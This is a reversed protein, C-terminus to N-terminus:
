DEPRLRDNLAKQYKEKYDGVSNEKVRNKKLLNFKNINKNLIQQNEFQKYIIFYIAKIMYKVLIFISIGALIYWKDLLLNYNTNALFYVIGLIYFLAQM